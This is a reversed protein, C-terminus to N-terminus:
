PSPKSLWTLVYQNVTMDGQPTKWLGLREGLKELATLKNHLKLRITGGHETTTESIEAVVRCQAPTLTACDRLRVGDSGWRMYDAMSAFGVHALEDIVRAPTVANADALAVQRAALADQILPKSLNESGIRQATHASYGARIAAQTANLDILYEEVFRQQKPSLGNAIRPM